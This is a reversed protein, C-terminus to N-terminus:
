ASRHDFQLCTADGEGGADLCTELIPLFNQTDIGGTTEIMTMGNRVCSEALARLEALSALGGMPFFKAAHGGLDLIM